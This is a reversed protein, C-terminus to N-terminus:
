RIPVRVEKLNVKVELAYAMSECPMVVGTLHLHIVTKEGQLNGKAGRPIRLHSVGYEASFETKLKPTATRDATKRWANDRACM